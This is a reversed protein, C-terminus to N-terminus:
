PPTIAASPRIEILPYRFIYGGHSPRVGKLCSCIHPYGIDLSSACDRQNIWKGILEGTSKDFVHFEKAGKSISNKLRSERSHHKGKMHGTLGLHALRNKLKSAETHHRGKMGSPQGRRRSAIKEIWEPPLKVGKLPHVYEGTRYKRKLTASIKDRIEQTPIANRGGLEINYGGVSVHTGLSQIYEVEKQNAEGISEATDIKEVTFSEKGYKCIARYLIAGQHCHYKWRENLPLITQGVYKRGNILNTVLYITIM